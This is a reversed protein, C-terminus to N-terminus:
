KIIFFKVVAGGFGLLVITVIGYAINQIPTVTAKFQDKTVYDRALDERSIYGAKLEDKSVYGAKIEGRIKELFNYLDENTVNSRKVM